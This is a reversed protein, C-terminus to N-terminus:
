QLLELGDRSRHNIESSMKKNENYKFRQLVLHLPLKKDLFERSLFSSSIFFNAIRVTKTKTKLIMETEMTIAWALCFCCWRCCLFGNLDSGDIVKGTAAM